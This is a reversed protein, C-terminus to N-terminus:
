QHPVKVKIGLEDIKVILLEILALHDLLRGQTANSKRLEALIETLVDPSHKDQQSKDVLTHEAIPQIVPNFSLEPQLDVAPADENRGLIRDVDDKLVYPHSYQMRDLAGNPLVFATKTKYAPIKYNNILESIKDRQKQDESTKGPILKIVKYHNDPIDDVSDVYTVNPM